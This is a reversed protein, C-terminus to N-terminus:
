DVDTEPMPESGSIDQGVPIFSKAQKTFLEYDLM